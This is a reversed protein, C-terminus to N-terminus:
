QVAPIVREVILRIIDYWHENARAAVYHWECTAVVVLDLDPVVVIFQGGYGTAFYFDHDHASGVWWLYGYHPGYPLATATAIHAQTSTTAWGPPVIQHSGAAGANLYLMGFQLMDRSTVQLGAGGVNYGQNDVLWQRDGVGLPEFLYQQAFDLASLGTAETLIVSLLHAGGDSYNFRAGPPDVFPKDLIYELQDPASMWRNFESYSGLEHWELGSSMTLLQRITIRGKEEDLNDVLGGLFDALTMEVDQIFGERIAIGILASTFSKTVSRVDHLANPGHGNFYQEALLAGRQAVLLSKIGEIQEAQAYAQALQENDIGQPPPAAGLCSAILLALATAAAPQLQRPAQRM